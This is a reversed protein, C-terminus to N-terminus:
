ISEEFWQFNSGVTSAQTTGYVCVNSGPQIVIEETIKVDISTNVAVYFSFLVKGAYDALVTTNKGYSGLAVAQSDGGINKNFMVNATGAYAGANTGVYVGQATDSSLSIGNLVIVKGSGAPNILAHYPYQGAVGGTSCPMVYAQNAKTRNKGSSVIEVSGTVTNDEIRGNGVVIRGLIPATNAYNGILWRGGGREKDDLRFAQGPKLVVATGSMDHKVTITADAGGASGNYYYIYRGQSAVEQVNNPAINIDYIQM